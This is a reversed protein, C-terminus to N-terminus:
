VYCSLIFLNINEQVHSYLIYINLGVELWASIINNEPLLFSKVKRDYGHDVSLIVVPSKYFTTNFPVEKLYIFLQNLWPGTTQRVIPNFKFRPKRKNQLFVNERIIIEMKKFYGIM